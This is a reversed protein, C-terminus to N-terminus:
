PRQYEWLLIFKVVPKISLQLHSQRLFRAGDCFGSKKWLIDWVFFCVVQQECIVIIDLHENEVCYCHKICTGGGADIYVVTFNQFMYGISFTKINKGAYEGYCEFM